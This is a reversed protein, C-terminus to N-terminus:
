RKLTKNQILISLNIIYNDLYDSNAMKRGEAVATTESWDTLLYKIKNIIKINNYIWPMSM